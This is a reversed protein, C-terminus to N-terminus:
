RENEKKNPKKVAHLQESGADRHGLGAEPVVQGAHLLDLTGVTLAQFHMLDELLVGVNDLVKADPNSIIRARSRVVHVLLVTRGGEGSGNILHVSFHCRAMAGASSVDLNNAGGNDGSSLAAAVVGQLEVIGLDVEAHQM